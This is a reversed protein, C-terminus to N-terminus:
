PSVSMTTTLTSTYNGARANAPVTLALTLPTTYAGEGDNTHATLMIHSADMTQISGAPILASRPDGHVTSIVGVGIKLATNAIDDASEAASNISPSWSFDSAQVSVAWGAGSGSRDDVTLLMTGTITTVTHSFMLDGEETWIALDTDTWNLAALTATRSGPEITTTASSCPSTPTCYVYSVLEYASWNTAGPDYIETSPYYLVVDVYGLFARWGLTPQPGRFTVSTLPNSSFADPGITELKDPLILSELSNDSFADQGITELAAPLTVSDLGTGSFAFRDITKLKDPLIVSDLSNGGFAGEGIFTLESTGTGFIISTVGTGAFASEGISEVTNPITLTGVNTANAFANEGIAVVPAETEPAFALITSTGQFSKSDTSTVTSEGDTTTYYIGSESTVGDEAHATSVGVFVGAGLLIATTAALLGLRTAGRRHAVHPTAGREPMATPTESPLM